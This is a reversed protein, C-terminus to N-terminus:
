ELGLQVLQNDSVAAGQLASLIESQTEPPKSALVGKLLEIAQDSSADAISGAVDRIIDTRSAPPFREWELLGFMSRQLMVAGENPGTLVSMNLASVVDNKPASLILQLGALALWDSPALPSVELARKVEYAYAQVAQPDTASLLPARATRRAAAEVGPIHQWAQVRDIGAADAFMDAKAISFGTLYVGRVLAFLAVGIMVIITAFRM